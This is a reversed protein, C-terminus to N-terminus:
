VCRSTYLLCPNGRETKREAPQWNSLDVDVITIGIRRLATLAADTSTFRRPKTSRQTVLVGQAQAHLNVKVTFAGGDGALQIARVGGNVHLLKLQDLTLPQMDNGHLNSNGATHVYTINQAILRYSRDRICM